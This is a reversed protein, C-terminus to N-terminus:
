VFINIADAECIFTPLYINMFNKVFDWKFFFQFEQSSFLFLSFSKKRRFQLHSTKTRILINNANDELERFQPGWSNFKECRNNKSNVSLMFIRGLM